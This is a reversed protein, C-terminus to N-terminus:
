TGVASAVIVKATIGVGSAASSKRIRGAVRPNGTIRVPYPLIYTQVPRVVGAGAALESFFSFEARDIGAGDAGFGIALDAYCAVELNQALITVGVLWSPDAPLLAAAQIEIHLNAAPYAWAAAAGDSVIAIGAGVPMVAYRVNGSNVLANFSQRSEQILAM